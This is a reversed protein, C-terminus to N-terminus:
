TGQFITLKQNMLILIHDSTIFKNTFESVSGLQKLNEYKEYLLEKYDPPLFQRKLYKKMNEWSEIPDKRLRIRMRQLQEWWAWASGRLKRVVFKVKKRETIDKYEFFREVEFLWKFFEEMNLHGSFEPFDIILPVEQSDYIGSTSSPVFHFKGKTM